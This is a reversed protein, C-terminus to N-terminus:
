ARHSAPNRPLDLWALPSHLGRVQIAPSKGNAPCEDLSCRIGHDSAARLRPAKHRCAMPNPPWLMLRREDRSVEGPDM